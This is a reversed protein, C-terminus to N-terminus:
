SKHVEPSEPFPRDSKGSSAAGTWLVCAESWGSKLRVAHANGIAATVLALCPLAVLAPDGGLAGATETVFADIPGPM